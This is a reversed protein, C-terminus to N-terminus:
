ANLFKDFDADTPQNTKAINQNSKKVTQTTQKSGKKITNGECYYNTMKNDALKVRGNNYFVDGGIKFVTSGNSMSAKTAGKFLPVCPYNYWLKDSTVANISQTVKSAWGGSSKKQKGLEQSKEYLDLLPLYVYKKWESSSDIDGDIADFLSEGHRTKYKSAMACLDPITKLKKLNSKIADEDTGLGEIAANIGDAIANLTSNGMTPAGVESKNKCAQLIREAGDKSPSGSVLQYIINAAGGIIAGPIAGVGAFAAGGAAGAATSTGVQGWDIEDLEGETMEPETINEKLYQKKTANEHLTLIRNKEEESLLFPNKM